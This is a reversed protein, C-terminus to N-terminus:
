GVLLEDLVKAIEASLDPGPQALHTARAGALVAELQSLDEVVTVLEAEQLRYAFSVQHDDVAEGFRHLRPVVVPRHGHALAQAISGV